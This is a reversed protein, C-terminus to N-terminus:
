LNISRVKYVKYTVVSDNDLYIPILVPEEELTIHNYKDLVNIESLHDDSLKSLIVEGMGGNSLWLYVGKSSKVLRIPTPKLSSLSRFKHIINM